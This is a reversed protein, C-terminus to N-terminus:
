NIVAAAMASYSICVAICVLIFVIYIPKSQDQLFYILSVILLVFMGTMTSALIKKVQFSIGSWNGLDGLMNSTQMGVKFLCWLGLGGLGIIIPLSSVMSLISSLNFAPATSTSNSANVAVNAANATSKTPASAAANSTSKSSNTPAHASM